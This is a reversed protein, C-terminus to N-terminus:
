AKLKQKVKILVEKHQDNVADKSYGYSVDFARSFNYSIPYKFEGEQVHRRRVDESECVFLLYYAAKYCTEKTGIMPIMYKFPFKGDPDYFIIRRTQRFGDSDALKKKFEAYSILPPRSITKDEM